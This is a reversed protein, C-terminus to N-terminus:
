YKQKNSNQCFTRYMPFIKMLNKYLANEVRFVSYVNYTICEQLLLITKKLFM